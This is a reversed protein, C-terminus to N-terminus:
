HAQSPTTLLLNLLGWLHSIISNHGSVSQKRILHHSPSRGVRVGPERQASDRQM